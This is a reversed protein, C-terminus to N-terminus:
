RGAGLTVGILRGLGAEVAPPLRLGPRQALTARPTGAIDAPTRPADFLASPQEAFDAADLDALAVLGGPALGVVLRRDGVAVLHLSAKPALARSELVVMRAASSAPGAQVRRLVRLTIVLLLLVLASKWGLDFLDLGTGANLAPMGIASAAPTSVAGAAGASGAAPNVLGLLAIGALAAVGAAILFWRGGPLRPLSFRDAVRDWGIRGAAAPGVFRAQARPTALPRSRSVRLASGAPPAASARTM